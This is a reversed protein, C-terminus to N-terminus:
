KYFIPTLLFINPDSNNITIWDFPACTFEWPLGYINGAPSMVAAAVDTRQCRPLHMVHEGDNSGVPRAAIEIGVTRIPDLGWRQLAAVFDKTKPGLAFDEDLERRRQRTRHLHALRVRGLSWNPRDGGTGSNAFEVLPGRARSTAIGARAVGGRGSGGRGTGPWSFRRL